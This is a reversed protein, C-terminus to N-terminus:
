PLILLQPFNQSDNRNQASHYSPHIMQAEISPHYQHLLKPYIIKQSLSSWVCRLRLMM